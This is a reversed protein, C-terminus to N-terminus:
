EKKILMIYSERFFPIFTAFLSSLLFVLKNFGLSGLYVINRISLGQISDFAELSVKRFLKKIATPTYPKIHGFTNWVKKPMPTILIIIGNQKLVRKTELFMKHADLPTLHEIVNSCHIVDFYNDEFPIKTADGYKVLLGESQLKEILTKNIDIGYINNRDKRLLNGEGCGIDLVKKGKMFIEFLPNKKQAWFKMMKLILGINKM